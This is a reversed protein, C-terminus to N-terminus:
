GAGLGGAGLVAYAHAQWFKPGLEKGYLMCTFDPAQFVGLMERYLRRAEDFDGRDYVLRTYEWRTM